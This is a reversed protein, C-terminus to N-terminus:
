TSSHLNWLSSPVQMTLSQSPNFSTSASPLINASFSMTHRNVLSRFSVNAPFRKLIVPGGRNEESAGTGGGDIRYRSESSCILSISRSTKPCGQSTVWPRSKDFDFAAFGSTHDCTQLLNKSTGKCESSTSCGGRERYRVRANDDVSDFSVSLTAKILCYLVNCSYRQSAGISECDKRCQAFVSQIRRLM